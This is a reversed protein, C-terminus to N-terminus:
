YGYEKLKKPYYDVMYELEDQTHNLQNIIEEYNYDDKLDNKFESILIKIKNNFDKAVELDHKKDLTDKEDYGILHKFPCNYEWENCKGGNDIQRPCDECDYCAM